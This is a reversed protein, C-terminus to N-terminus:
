LTTTLQRICAPQSGLPIGSNLLLTCVCTVACSTPRKREEDRGRQTKEERKRVKAPFMILVTLSQIANIIPKLRGGGKKQSWGFKLDLAVIIAAVLFATFGLGIMLRLQLGTDSPCRCYSRAFFLSSSRLSHAFAFQVVCKRPSTHQGDFCCHTASLAVYSELAATYLSPHSLLFLTLKRKAHILAGADFGGRPARRACCGAPVM